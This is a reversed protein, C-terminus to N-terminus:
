YTCSGDRTALDIRSPDTCWVSYMCSEWCVVSIVTDSTINLFRNTYGWASVACSGANSLDEQITWNDSSFKYEYYGAPVSLTIEWINDNNVDTLSACSGCWSNFTGNVEPILLLIQLM